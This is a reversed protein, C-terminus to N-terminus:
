LKRFKGPQMKKKKLFIRNFYALNEFGCENAVTSISKDTEILLTCAHAIRIENVYDSFTKGVSRKFFKCFASQSLHLLGSATQLNVQEKFYNQIYHLVKNIRGEQQQSKLKKFNASALTKMQQNALVELFNLFSTILLVGNESYIKNVAESYSLHNSKIFRIGNSAKELLKKIAKMEPLSLFPEIFGASFQIVIARCNEKKLKDSVWTHPLSPGLLVLDGEAFNEISDGVMRRGKGKLIYTLEFEPHYHWYFEFSPVVVEYCLISGDEKQKKITEFKARM